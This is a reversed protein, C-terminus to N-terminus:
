FIKAIRSMSSLNIKAEPDCISQLSAALVTNSSASSSLYKGIPVESDIKILYSKNLLQKNTINFFTQCMYEFKIQEFDVHDAWRIKEYDKFQMESHPLEPLSSTKRGYNNNTLILWFPIISKLMTVSDIAM